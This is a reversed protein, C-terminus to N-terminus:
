QNLAQRYVAIGALEQLARDRLPGNPFQEAWASAAAFDQLGWQHLVSIASEIQAPSSTMQGAILNMADSPATQSQVYAIHAFIQDRQDGAPQRTAWALASTLDKGAWLQALNELAGNSDGFGYREALTIAQAPDSQAIQFAVETLASKQEDPVALSTAWAVAGAADVGAWGQAVRRLLEQRGDGPDLSEALKGAAAPDQAMLAPLLNTFVLDHDAANTSNLAQRIAQVLQSVTEQHTPKPPAPSLAATPLVEPAVRPAPVAPAHVQTAAKGKTDTVASAAPPASAERPRPAPFSIVGIAIAATMTLLVLVKKM